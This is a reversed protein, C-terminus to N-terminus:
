GRLLEDWEEELTGGGATERALEKRIEGRVEERISFLYTRVQNETLGLRRAIDGHTPQDASQSLDYEEYVRFALERGGAGWRAKVREVADRVLELAWLRDFLREPAIAHPDALLESLGADDHLPLVRVGGGRKLRGLAADQHSVFRGLLVKLYRRLSGREPDFSRLPDGELLWVFFGQTLDKADENTRALVVRVYGYVPKWYRRCFEELGSRCSPSESEHLTSIVGLTTEPFRGRPGGLSTDGTKM